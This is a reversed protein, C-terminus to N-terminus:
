CSPGQHAWTPNKLWNSLHDRCVSSNGRHSAPWRMLAWQSISPSAWERKPSGWFSSRNGALTLGSSSSWSSHPLSHSFSHVSSISVTIVFLAAQTLATVWTPGSIVIKTFLDSPACHHVQAPLAGVKLLQFTEFQKSLFLSTKRKKTNSWLSFFCLSFLPTQSDAKHILWFLYSDNKVRLKVFLSYYGIIHFM